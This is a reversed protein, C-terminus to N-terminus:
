HLKLHKRPTTIHVCESQSACCAIADDFVAALRLARRGTEGLGLAIVFPPGRAVDSKALRRFIRM